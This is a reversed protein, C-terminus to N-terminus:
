HGHGEEENSYDDETSDALGSIDVKMNGGFYFGHGGFVSKLTCSSSEGSEPQMVTINVGADYLIQGPSHMTPDELRVSFNVNEDGSSPLTGMGVAGYTKPTGARLSVKLSEGGTTLAREGM